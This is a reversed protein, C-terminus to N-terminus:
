GIRLRGLPSIAVAVLLERYPIEERRACVVIDVLFRRIDDTAELFAVNTPILSYHEFMEALKPSFTRNREM